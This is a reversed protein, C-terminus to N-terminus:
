EQDQRQKEGRAEGKEMRYGVRPEAFIYRPEEASDGLKRRLRKVYTRVSGRDGTHGVGLCPGAPHRLEVGAGREGVARCATRIRDADDPRSHGGRQSATRHLRHDPRGAIFPESLDGPISRAKQAPRGAGQGRTGNLLLTQCHLRGSRDRHGQRHSEDRGYASVFIVPVDVIELIQKMLEIGDSNPLMLDLLALRPRETEALRLAEEPDATVLPVFGARALADRMYRLAMPDDDVVLIRAQERSARRSSDSTSPAPAAPSPRVEEAVPLTFTFKAGLGVVTARQGSAGATLRWSARASRWAWSRYGHDRREGDDEIRSFKM